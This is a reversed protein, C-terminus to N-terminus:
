RELMGYNNSYVKIDVKNVNALYTFFYEIIEVEMVNRTFSINLKDGITTTACTIPSAKTPFLVFDMREILNLLDRPLQVVGMNSLTMTKAKQGYRKSVFKIGINKIFLPVIRASLMREFVVNSAAYSYLAEKQSAEKIQKSVEQLIYELTINEFVKVGVNCVGVFNRLTKSPFSNRLNIPIAIAILDDYVGYKMSQWYISYILVSTLYATISAGYSKAVKHVSSASMVGHIVNNGAVDFESGAIQFSKIEEKRKSKGGKFYTSFSDEVEYKSSKDYPMLILGEDDITKGLLTFYQYVLTKLFETAGAGDSIAHFVELSIKNNFYLVRILHFNNARGKITSCPYEKEEMAVVKYENERLYSWFLGSQIKVRFTPFRKIVIDLAEQLLDPNVEQKIIFSVRFVSTNGKKATASFMKGANDIKYWRNM